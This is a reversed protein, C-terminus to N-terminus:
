QRSVCVMVLLRIGSLPCVVPIEAAPRWSAGAADQPQPATVQVVPLEPSRVTDAQVALLGTGSPGCIPDDHEAPTGSGDPVDYSDSPGGEAALDNDGHHDHVVATDFLPQSTRAGVAEFSTRAESDVHGHCFLVGLLALVATLIATSGGRPRAGGTAAIPM